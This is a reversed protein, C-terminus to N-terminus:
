EANVAYSELYGCDACRLTVCPFNARGSLKLGAFFAPEPYGEVWTSVRTVNGHGHDAIFGIHM